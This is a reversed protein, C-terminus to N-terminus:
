MTHNFPERRESDAEDKDDYSCVLKYREGAGDTENDDGGFDVFVFWNWRILGYCRGDGM